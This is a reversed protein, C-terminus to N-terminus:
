YVARVLLFLGFLCAPIGALLGALSLNLISGALLLGLGLMFTAAIGLRREVLSAARWLLVPPWKLWRFFGTRRPTGTHSLRSM